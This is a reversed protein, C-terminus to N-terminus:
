RGGFWRAVHDPEAPAAVPPAVAHHRTPAALTFFVALSFVTSGLFRGRM